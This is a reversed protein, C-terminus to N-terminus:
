RGFFRPSGFRRSGENLKSVLDYRHGRLKKKKESIIAMPIGIVALLLLPVIIWRLTKRASASLPPPPPTLAAMTEKVPHGCGPCAAARPSVEKGCAACAVLSTTVGVGISETM